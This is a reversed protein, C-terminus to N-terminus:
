KRDGTFDQLRRMNWIEKKAMEAVADLENKLEAVRKDVESGSMCRTTLNEQTTYILVGFKKDVDIDFRSM